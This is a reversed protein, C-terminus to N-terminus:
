NCARPKSSERYEIYNKLIELTNNRQIENLLNFPYLNNFCSFVKLAEFDFKLIKVKM